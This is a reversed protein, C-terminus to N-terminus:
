VVASKIHLKNLQTDCLIASVKQIAHSHIDNYHVNSGYDAEQILYANTHAHTNIIHLYM